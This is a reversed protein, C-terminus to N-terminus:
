INDLNDNFTINEYITGPFLSDGHLVSSTIKRIAHKGTKKINVGGIFISGAVPETIGLLIKIFTSKGSGSDGTSLVT